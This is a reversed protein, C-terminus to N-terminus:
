RRPHAPFVCSLTFDNQRGAELGPPRPLKSKTELTELGWAWVMFYVAVQTYM